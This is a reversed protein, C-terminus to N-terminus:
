SLGGAGDPERIRRRRHGEGTSTHGHPRQHRHLPARLRVRLTNYISAEQSGPWAEQSAVLRFTVTASYQGAPVTYTITSPFTSVGWPLSFYLTETGTPVPAGVPFEIQATILPSTEGIGFNVTSPSITMTQAWGPMAALVALICLFFGRLIARQSM